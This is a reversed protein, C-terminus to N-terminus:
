RFATSPRNCGPQVQRRPRVSGSLSHLLWYCLIIFYASPSIKYRGALYALPVSLIFLPAMRKLPFHGAKAFRIAGGTAVVLNCSLAVVPIAAASFGAVALFATYSSGGGFGVSSYLFAVVCFVLALWIVDLTM